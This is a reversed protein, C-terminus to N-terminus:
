KYQDNSGSYFELLHKKAMELEKIYKIVSAGQGKLPPLNTEIDSISEQEGDPIVKKESQVALNYFASRLSEVPMTTLEQGTATLTPKHSTTIVNKMAFESEVPKM